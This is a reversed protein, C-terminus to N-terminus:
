CFMSWLGARVLQYYMGGTMDLSSDHWQRYTNYVSQSMGQSHSQNNSHSANSGVNRGYSGSSSGNWSWDHSASLNSSKQSSNDRGQSTNMTVNDAYEVDQVLPDGKIFVKDQPMTSLINKADSDTTGVSASDSKSDSNSQGDNTSQNKSTNESTSTSGGSSSSQANSTSDHDRYIGQFIQRLHQEDLEAYRHWTASFMRFWAGATDKLIERDETLVFIDEMIKYTLQSDMEKDNFVVLPKIRTIEILRDFVEDLLEETPIYLRNDPYDSLGLLLDRTTMRTEYRRHALHEHPGQNGELPQSMYGTGLNSAGGFPFFGNGGIVNVM